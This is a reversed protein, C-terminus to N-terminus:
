SISVTGVQREWGEMKRKKKIEKKRKRGSRSEKRTKSIEVNVTLLNWDTDCQTDKKKKRKWCLTASFAFGKVQVLERKAIGGGRGGGARRYLSREQEWLTKGM